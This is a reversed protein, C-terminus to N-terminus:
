LSPNNNITKEDKLFMIQLLMIILLSLTLFTLTLIVQLLTEHFLYILIVELINFLFLFYLFKTKGISLNYFSIAYVLSFLAMFIGFLGLLNAADLYEPGYVLNIIFNSFLFYVIIVPILFISMMLISKYLLHKHPLNKTYSESVKPFMVQTISYSGFFLIKALTSLAVYHGAQVDNFFHKVLIVDITYIITLGILMLLVPLTYKYIKKTNFKKIGNKLIKKLAKYGFFYAIMYSLVISLVAGNVGWGILVLLVGLFFKSTGETLLNLGFSKFKQLGQLMGRIIPVLFIFLIFPSLIFLHSTKIKIYEALFPSIVLFILLGIVGFITLRKVASKFLYKIEAPKNKAKFSATFKSIGTQITTLPVNFVYVISLIVGIVGYAAPGLYRGVFFHFLFVLAGTILNSIFLILNDRVLKNKKYRDLFKKIM